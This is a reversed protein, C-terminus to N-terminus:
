RKTGHSSGTLALKQAEYKDEITEIWAYREYVTLRRTDPCGLESLTVGLKVHAKEMETLVNNADGDRFCLPPRATVLM